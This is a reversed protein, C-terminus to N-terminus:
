ASAWAAVFRLRAAQARPVLAAAAHPQSWLYQIRWLLVRTWPMGQEFLPKLQRQPEEWGLHENALPARSTRALGPSTQIGPVFWSDQDGHVEHM